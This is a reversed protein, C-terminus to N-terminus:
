QVGQLSEELLYNRHGWGEMQQAILYNVLMGRPNMQNVEECGRLPLPTAGPALLLSCPPVVAGARDLPRGVGPELTPGAVETCRPPPGGGETFGDCPRLENTADFAGPPVSGDLPGDGDPDKAGAPPEADEPLETAGPLETGGPLEARGPLEVGAPLETGELLKACEPLEIGGLLETTGPEKAGTLPPPEAGGGDADPCDGVELRGPETSGPAVCPWVDAGGRPLKVAGVAAPKGEPLWAELPPGGGELLKRGGLPVADPEVTTGDAVGPLLELPDGDAGSGDPAELTPEPCDAGGGDRDPELLPEPCDAKEGSDEVVEIELETPDGEDGTEDLGADDGSGDPDEFPITEGVM